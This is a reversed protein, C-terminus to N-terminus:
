IGIVDRFSAPNPQQNKQTPAGDSPGSQPAPRTQEVKDLRTALGKTTEQVAATTTKLEQLIALVEEGMAKGTPEMPRVGSAFSLDDPLEKVREFLAKLADAGATMKYAALAKELGEAMIRSNVQSMKRRKEAKEKEPDMMDDAKASKQPVPSPYRGASTKTLFAHVKLLNAKMDGEAQDAMKKMWPLVMGMAAKLDPPLQKEVWAFGDDELMKTVQELLQEEDMKMSEQQRKLELVPRLNAPRDVSSVENVQLEVIERPKDEDDRDVVM